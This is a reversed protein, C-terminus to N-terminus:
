DAMTRIQAELQRLVGDLRNLEDHQAINQEVMRRPLKLKRGMALVDAALRDRYDSLEKHTSELEKRSPAPDPQTMAPPVFLTLAQICVELNGEAQVRLPNLPSWGTFFGQWPCAPGNMRGTGESLTKWVTAAGM